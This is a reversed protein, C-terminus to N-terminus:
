EDDGVVNERLRRSSVRQRSLAFSSSSVLVLVPSSHSLSVNDCQLSIIHIFPRASFQHQGGGVGSHHVPPSALFDDSNINLLHSGLLLLVFVNILFKRVVIVSISITSSEEFPCTFLDM